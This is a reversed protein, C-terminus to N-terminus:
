DGPFDNIQWNSGFKLDKNQFCKIKISLVMTFKTELVDIWIVRSIPSCRQLLNILSCFWTKGYSLLKKHGSQNLAMNTLTCVMFIVHHHCLKNKERENMCNELFSWHFHFCFQLHWQLFCISLFKRHDTSKNLMSIIDFHEFSEAQTKFKKIYNEHNVLACVMSFQWPSKNILWHQNDKSWLWQNNQTM